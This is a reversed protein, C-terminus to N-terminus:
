DGDPVVEYHYGKYTTHPRHVCRCINGSDGGVYRACDAMNDFIQGTEVIRIRQIPGRGGSPKRFGNDYAHQVNQSGTVFELNSVHNNLKNGDIHNVQLGSHDGEIFTKAVLRHVTKSHCRGHVGKNLSVQLYGWDDIRPKKVHLTRRNRIDGYKNIEYIPFEEITKWTERIM